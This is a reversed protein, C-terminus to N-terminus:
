NKMAAKLTNKLLCTVTMPGVGGPVPTIAKARNIARSFEVDGIIKNDELHNIGVDIVVANEKIWDGKILEKQGVAAILIDAQRCLDPLDRSYSHAITVTCNEQLLLLSMPKGVIYSRGIVLSHLGSIKEVVSKILILCGQPTCPVFCDQNTILKGLNIPTFGDVDKKPDIANVIATSNIHGPLPLQVLIGHIKPDNNLVHIQEILESQTINADPYFEFLKIGVSKCALIKNRVYLKSAPNDGVLVVALGVEIALEKVQDAIQQRLLESIKKGDIIQATM